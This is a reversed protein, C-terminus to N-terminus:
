DSRLSRVVDVATARRAPVSSALLASALLVVAAASFALPDFVGVGFLMGSLLRTLAMAGAVGVVLGAVAVGMGRRLVMGFIRGRDAGLAMRIGLEPGRSSVTYALSGYLGVAALLIALGAFVGILIAQFRPTTHSRRITTAVDGVSFPPLNPSFRAAAQRMENLLGEGARASRVMVQAGYPWEVQKYSAYLAPRFGDEARAQIANGVVGVITMPTPAPNEAVGVVQITAGIRATGPLHESVFAENVVIAMPAAANDSPSLTRGMRLPIRLVEFYGPTVVYSAIGRRGEDPADGPVLVTAAWDPDQYPLNSGAAMGDLGPVASVEALLRDWAQSPQEGAPMGPAKLGISVAALNRLDFGPDVTALRFFSTFLLSAGVGLVVAVGLQGVVLADRLRTSAATRTTGARERIASALDNGTLRLAPFLGVLMGTGIAVLGSTGVIRLNVSVEDLRPLNSPALALFAAVGGVALALGLLGGSVSLVLSELLVERTLQRRGAGLARRVNMDGMRDLGRVLLLNAANLAAILLLLASAGLFIGLTGALSGVTEDHLSNVGAGLHGGTNLANGQPYERAVDDQIARLEARASEIDVGPALRGFTSLTRRGRDAYRTTTLDMPMWFAIDTTALVEPPAFSPPLVGVITYTTGFTELSKGVVSPDAGFRQTWARHSLLVISGTTGAIDDPGFGRGLVPRAGFLEFFGESVRAMPVLEPGAGRDPMLTSSREAAVIQEFRHQRAMWDVLNSGSVAMLYQQGPRDARWERSPSTAGIVALRDADPYPLERVVIADVISYITTTAGIGIGLTLIVVASFGPRRVLARFTFRLDSLLSSMGNTGRPPTIAQYAARRVRVASPKWWAVLSRGADRSATVLARSPNHSADAHFREEIDGRLSEAGPGRILSLLVRLLRPLSPTM